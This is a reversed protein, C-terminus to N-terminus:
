EAVTQIISYVLEATKVLEEVPIQEKKTHIHEYGIAFNITPVGMGNFINADSGGGSHVLKMERGIRALAKGATQVVEAHEDHMFAPYILESRFEARAGFSEATEVFASRMKEIQAQLKDNNM